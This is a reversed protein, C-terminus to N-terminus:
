VLAACPLSFSVTTGAGTRSEICITGGHAEVLSKAIALGLGTGLVGDGNQGRYFRDFVQPLENAAIGPGQDSVIFCVSDGNRIARVTIATQPSAYKIANGIVNSFIQQVRHPACTVVDDALEGGVITQGRTVALPTMREIAARALQSASVSVLEFSLRGAELASLDLVNRVMEDMQEVARSVDNAIALDRSDRARRRLVEANLSLVALPNKLDHSVSEVLQDRARLAARSEDEARVMETIDRFVVVAGTIAGEHDRLPSAKVVSWREEPSGRKKWLVRAEATQGTRRAISAPMEARTIPAGHENFLEYAGLLASAGHQLLVDASPFGLFRAAADNAYILAGADDQAVIGEDVVQLINAIPGKLLSGLCEGRKDLQKSSSACGLNRM